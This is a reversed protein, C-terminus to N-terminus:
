FRTSPEPFSSFFCFVQLWLFFLLCYNYKWPGGKMEGICYHGVVLMHVSGSFRTTTNQIQEPDHIKTPRSCLREIADKREDQSRREASPMQTKAEWILAQMPPEKCNSKSALSGRSLTPRSSNQIELFYSINILSTLNIIIDSNYMDDNSKLVGCYFLMKVM